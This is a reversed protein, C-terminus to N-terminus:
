TLLGPGPIPAINITPDIVVPFRRGPQNLWGADPTVTVLLTRAAPDWQMQQSVKPSWSVGLPSSKDRRADTMFPKPMVLVAPGGAGTRSFMIQGAHQYPVLGGGVKVTFTFSSAAAASALTINEKLATPTVQYSLGAGPAVRRYSVTDGAVRPRMPRTGDVGMRLWGGGPAQFRALRAPDAGFFSRFTNSTNGYKYGPRTSPQV